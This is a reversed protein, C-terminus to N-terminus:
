AAGGAAGGATLRFYPLTLGYGVDTLELEVSRGVRLDGEECGVLCTTVKLGPEEELEVVALVYPLRDVFYPHFAQMVVTYSYLTGRGSVTDPALDMSHCRDCIPRPYHVFHGCAQCRLIDLRGADIAEWFFTTLPGPVPVPPLASAPVGKAVALGDTTIAVSGGEDDTGPMM